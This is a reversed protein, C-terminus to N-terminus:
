VHECMDRVLALMNWLQSIFGMVWFVACAKHSQDKVKLTM